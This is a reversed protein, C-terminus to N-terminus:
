VPGVIACLPWGSGNDPTRVVSSGPRPVGMAPRVTVKTSPEPALAWVHAATVSVVPVAAQM